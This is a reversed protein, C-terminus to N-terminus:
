ESCIGYIAQVGATDGTYLTNNKCQGPQAYGFMTERFYTYDYIDDLCLWHGFEHTAINQLDVTQYYYYYFGCAPVGFKYSQQFVVDVEATSLTDSWYWQYTSAYADENATGFTLTNKYDQVATTLNPDNSISVYAGFSWCAGASDWANAADQFASIVQDDTLGDDNNNNIYWGDVPHYEGNSYSGSTEVWDLSDDEVGDGDLDFICLQYTSSQEIQYRLDALGTSGKIMRRLLDQESINWEIAKGARLSIKGQPGGMITFFGDSHARLFFLARDGRPLPPTDSVKLGRGDVVGGPQEIILLGSPNGKFKKEVAVSIKTVILNDEWHSFRDAVRGIVIVNAEEYLKSPEKELYSAEASFTLVSLFVALISLSLRM